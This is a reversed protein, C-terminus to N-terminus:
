SLGGSVPEGALERPQAHRPRPQYRAPIPQRLERMKKRWTDDHGHRPTLIHAYEHWLLRSPKDPTTFLRRQSLVCVWGFHRDGPHNHAHGRHRFRSGVGRAVCGGVFLGQIEPMPISLSPLPIM